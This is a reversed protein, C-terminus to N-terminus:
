IKKLCTDSSNRRGNKILHFFDSKLEFNIRYYGM